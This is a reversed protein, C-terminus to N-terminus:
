SFMTQKRIMLKFRFTQLSRMNQQSAHTLESTFLLRSVSPLWSLPTRRARVFCSVAELEEVGAVDIWVVLYTRVCVAPNSFERWQM